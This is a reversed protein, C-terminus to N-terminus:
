QCDAPLDITVMVVNNTISDVLIVRIVSKTNTLNSETDYKSFDEQIQKEMKCWPMYTINVGINMDKACILAGHHGENEPNVVGHKLHEEMYLVALDDHNKNVFNLIPLLEKPFDSESM